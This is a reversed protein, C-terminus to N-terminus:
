WINLLLLKLYPTSDHAISTDADALFTQTHKIHKAWISKFGCLSTQEFGSFYNFSLLINLVFVVRVRRYWLVWTCSDNAKSDIKNWHNLPFHTQTEGELSATTQESLMHLCELVIDCISSDCHCSQKIFIIQDQTVNKGERLHLFRYNRTEM